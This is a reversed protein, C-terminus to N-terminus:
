FEPDEFNDEIDSNNDEIIFQNKPKTAVNLFVSNKFKLKKVLCERCTFKSPIRQGPNGEKFWEKFEAYIDDVSIHRDEAIMIREEIFQQYIDNKMRYENTARMVEDPEYLPINCYEKYWEILMSMFVPALEPLKDKLETDMPFIKKRKQEVATKPLEKHNEPVFRSEFKLRRIRNWAAPDNAGVEPDFNCHLLTVFYPKILIPSKFNDRAYIKDGGTLKKMMSSNLKDGNDTESLECVRSGKLPVLEPTPGSSQKQRQTLLTTPPSYFYDGFAHNILEALISKGNNGVGSWVLFIKHRNGGILFDSVTQKFFILLKHNVFTKKLMNMIYKYRHDSESVKGIYDIRTSKTIYDSPRGPRFTKEKCDFVGNNFGLLFPNDDMREVFYPDYFFEVAEKMVNQKFNTKNLKDIAKVVMKKQELLEDYERNQEEELSNTHMQTALAVSYTNFEPEIGTRIKTRLGIGDEDKVWRHGEYKYWTKGVTCIFYDHYFEHLLQAIDTERCKLSSRIKSQRSYRNYEIWGKENHEKIYLGLERMGSGNLQFSGWRDECEGPKFKVSRQSFGIWLDLGQELGQSINYLYAGVRFWENYDDSCKEPLYDILMKANGLEQLIQDINKSLIPKKDKKEL